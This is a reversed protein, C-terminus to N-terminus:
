INNDEELIFLENADISRSIAEIYDELNTILWGINVRKIEGFSSLDLKKIESLLDKLKDLDDVRNEYLIHNSRYLASLAARLDNLQENNCEMILEVLKSTDLWYIFSHGEIYSDQTSLKFIKKAWNDNDQIASTFNSEESDNNRARIIKVLEGWRKDYKSQTEENDQDFFPYRNGLLEFKEKISINQASHKMAEWVDNCKQVCVEKAEINSILNLIDSFLLPSYGDNDLKEKVKDLWADVQADESSSWEKLKNFPDEKLKAEESVQQVYNRMVHNAFASGVSKGKVFEDVFRFGNLYEKMDWFDGFGILGYEEKWDPLKKGSAYKISTRYCYRVLDKHAEIYENNIMEFIYSIKELFFQFTRINKHNDTIAYDVLTDVDGIICKELMDNKLSKILELFVARLDPEYEITRGIVKEKFLLYKNKRSFLEARRLELEKISFPKDKNEQKIWHAEDPNEINSIEIDINPNMALMMQREYNNDNNLRNIEEENAVVIVTAKSHEVFNNIFGLIQNVDCNCRELDDFIVITNDYNVLAELEKRGKKTSINYRNLLTWIANGVFYKSVQFVKSNIGDLKFKQALRKLLLTDSVDKVDNIGYLSIYLTDPKKEHNDFHKILEEKVFYTKGCGWQGNIMLAYDYKRSEYFKEIEKLLERHKM